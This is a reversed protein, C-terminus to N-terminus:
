VSSVNGVIIRNTESGIAYDLIIGIKYIGPRTAKLNVSFHELEGPALDIFEDDSLTQNCKYLGVEPDINCFSGRTEKIGFNEIIKSNCTHDYKIVKVYMDGLRMHMRNPNSVDFILILGGINNQNNDSSTPEACTKPFWQTSENKDTYNMYYSCQIAIEGFIPANTQNALEIAKDYCYIAGTLNGQNFLNNGLENWYSIANCETGDALSILIVSFAMAWLNKQSNLARVELTRYVM